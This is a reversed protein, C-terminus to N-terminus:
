PAIGLPTVGRQDMADPSTDSTNWTALEAGAPVYGTEMVPVLVDMFDGAVVVTESVTFHATRMWNRPPVCEHTRWLISVM